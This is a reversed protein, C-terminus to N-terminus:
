GDGDLDAESIMENVKLYAYILELCKFINLEIM